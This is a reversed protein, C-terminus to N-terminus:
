ATFSRLHSTAHTVAHTFGPVTNDLQMGGGACGEARVYGCEAKVYERTESPWPYMTLFLRQATALHTKHAAAAEGRIRGLWLPMAGYAYRVVVEDTADERRSTQLM